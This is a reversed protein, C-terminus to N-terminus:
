FFDEEILFSMLPDQFSWSTLGLNDMHRDKLRKYVELKNEQFVVAESPEGGAVGVEEGLCRYM